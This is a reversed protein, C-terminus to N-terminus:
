GYITSYDNKLKEEKQLSYFLAEDFTQMKHRLAIALNIIHRQIQCFEDDVSCLSGTKLCANYYCDGGCLYRIDCTKCKDRNSVSIKEYGFRKHTHNHINGLLCDSMGVLSDCPYISGDPCITIKNIGADCRRDTLQDLIIRKLVKGFQDNDNLIMRLFNLDSHSFSDFLMSALRTYENCIKEVDYHQESRILRIQVNSFGLEKMHILQDVFDCNDNTATCLGWLTKFKKSATMNRQVLGIGNCVREYTGNGHTDKRYRDHYPQRGDLSIGISVHHASLYEIIENTLLSGNTCLWLSVQKQTAASYKETYDIALKITEFGLLPEGGSVFDIRYHNATPFAEYFFYNLMQKLSVETFSREDGVYNEGHNGFCYSCRFNCAYTPAFTLYAVKSEIDSPISDLDLEQFFGISKLTQVLANAQFLDIDQKTLRILEEYYPRNLRLIINGAYDYAYYDEDLSFFYCSTM